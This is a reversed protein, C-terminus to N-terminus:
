KNKQISLRKLQLGKKYGLLLFYLKKFSKEKIAFRLASYLINVISKFVGGILIIINGHKKILYFYNRATYYIANENPIRSNNNQYVHEHWCIVRSTSVIKYGFSKVRLLIDTEDGYMFIDEDFLGVDDFVKKKFMYNGGCVFDVELLEPIKNTLKENKFYKKITFDWNIKGGHERIINSHNEYMNIPAIVGIYEDEELIKKLESIGGKPINMDQLIFIIYKADLFKKVYRVGENYAGTIGKGVPLELIISKNFYPKYLSKYEKDSANDVIIHYDIEDRYEAYFKKWGEFNHIQNYATTIAAIKKM